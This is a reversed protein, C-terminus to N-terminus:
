RVYGTQTVAALLSYGNPEGQRYSFDTSRVLVPEPGLEAFHHFMLARLCRRYTRVEFGARYSSFADQRSPWRTRADDDVRPVDPEHEGYDLVLQFCWDAPVPTPQEATADPHYPTGHGYSIRKLYRNATVTRQQEFVAPPVNARDEAAYEYVTVNGKDDYS